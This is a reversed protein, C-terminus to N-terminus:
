CFGLPIRQGGTKVRSLIHRFHRFLGSIVFPTGGVNILGHIRGAWVTGTCAGVRSFEEASYRHQLGFGLSTFFQLVKSSPSFSVCWAKVDCVKETPLIFM